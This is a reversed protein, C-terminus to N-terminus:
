RLAKVEDSAPLRLLTDLAAALVSFCHEEYTDISWAGMLTSAQLTDSRASMEAM